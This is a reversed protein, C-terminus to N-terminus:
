TISGTTLECTTNHCPTTEPCGTIMASSTTYNLVCCRYLWVSDNSVTAKIGANADMSTSSNAKLEGQQCLPIFIEMRNGTLEKIAANNGEINLRLATNIAVLVVIAVLLCIAIRRRTLPNRKAEGAGNENERHM